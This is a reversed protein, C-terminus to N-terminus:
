PESNVAFSAFSYMRFLDAHRPRHENGAHSDMRGTKGEKADKADKATFANPQGPVRRVVSRAGRV